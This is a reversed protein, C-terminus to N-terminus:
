KRVHVDGKMKVSITVGDAVDIISTKLGDMHNLTWLYERMRQHITRQRRAIGFRSKVVDGDQLVNDSILVGHTKLLKLCSPLFTMYQGKAADMFIMDFQKEEPNSEANELQSALEDLLEKADMHYCHIRDSYGYKEHNAKALAYMKDSREVTLISGIEDDRMYGAMSEAMLISSYGIACGIELIRKPRHMSILTDLFYRMDERIIPVDHETAYDRLEKLVGKDEERIHSLFSQISEKMESM